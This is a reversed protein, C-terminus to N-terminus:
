NGVAILIPTTLTGDTGGTPKQRQVVQSTLTPDGVTQYFVDENNDASAIKTSVLCRFANAPFSRPFNVTQVGEGSSAPVGACWQVIIGGPLMVWGDAALSNPTADALAKPTIASNTATRASVAAGDAATVNVTRDASLDGGGTVLGTGGVFRSAPVKSAINALIDSISFPTLVRDGYIGANADARSALNATIVRDSDLTGGGTLAGGGTISRTSPVFYFWNASPGADPDVTNNDVNSCWILGPVTASAIVAHKPYGGILTSFAADFQSLGGAAQWRSWATIRNLLGNFDRGDPPIGGASEDVFTDPPFGDTLSAAGDDIGIQSATPIPRIYLGGAANAFPISFKSPIDSYQM